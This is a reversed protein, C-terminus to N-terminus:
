RRDPAPPVEDPTDDQEGPRSDPHEEPSGSPSERPAQQPSEVPGSDPIEPSGPGAGAQPARVVGGGDALAIWGKAAPDNHRSTGM